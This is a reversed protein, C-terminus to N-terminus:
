IILEKWYREVPTAEACLAFDSILYYFATLDKMKQKDTQSHLFRMMYHTCAVYLHDLSPVVKDNLNVVTETPIQHENLVKRINEALEKSRFRMERLRDKTEELTFNHTKGNLLYTYANGIATMSEFLRYDVSQKIRQMDDPSMM